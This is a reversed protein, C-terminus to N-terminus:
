EFVAKIKGISAPIVPTQGFALKYVHETKGSVVWIYGGGCACGSLGPSPASAVISGLTTMKHLYGTGYGGAYLYAGDYGLCTIEFPVQFSAVEYGSDDYKYLLDLYPFGFEYGWFYQGDWTLAQYYDGPGVWSVYSGTTTWTFFANPMDHGSVVYADRCALGAPEFHPPYEGITFSFVVSGNRPELRYVTDPEYNLCWLYAGDWGLGAPSNCPAPFSSIVSGFPGWAAAATVFSAALIRIIFTRVM